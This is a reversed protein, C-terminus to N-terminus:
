KDLFNCHEIRRTFCPRNGKSKVATSALGVEFDDDNDDDALSPNLLLDDDFNPAKSLEPIDSKSPAEVGENQAPAIYADM